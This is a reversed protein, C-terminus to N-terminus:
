TSITLIRIFSARFRGISAPFGSGGAADLLSIPTERPTKTPRPLFVHKCGETMIRAGSTSSGGRPHM